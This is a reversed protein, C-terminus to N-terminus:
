VFVVNEHDYDVESEITVDEIQEEYKYTVNYEKHVDVDVVFDEQEERERLPSEAVSSLASSTVSLKKSFKSNEGPRVISRDKVLVDSSTSQRYYQLGSPIKELGHQKCFHSQMALRMRAVQDSPGKCKWQPKNYVIFSCLLPCKIQPVALGLCKRGRKDVIGISREIAKGKLHSTFYHNVLVNYARTKETDRYIPDISPRVFSHFDCRPCKYIEGEDIERLFRTRSDRQSEHHSLFHSALSMAANRKVQSM